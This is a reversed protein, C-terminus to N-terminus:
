AEGRPLREFWAKAARSAHGNEVIVLEGEDIACDAPVEADCREGSLEGRLPIEDAYIDYITWSNSM